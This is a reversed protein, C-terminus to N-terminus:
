TGWVTQVRVQVRSRQGAKQVQRNRNQFTSCCVKQGNLVLGQEPAIQESPVM